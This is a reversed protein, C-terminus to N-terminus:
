HLLWIRGYRENTVSPYAICNYLLIALDRCTYQEFEIILSM